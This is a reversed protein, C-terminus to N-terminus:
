VRRESMEPESPDAIASNMGSEAQMFDILRHPIQVVSAACMLEAIRQEPRAFLGSLHFPSQRCPIVLLLHGDFWACGALPTGDILPMLEDAPLRVPPESWRIAVVIGHFLDGGDHDLSVDELNGWLDVMALSLHHGRYEGYVADEILSHSHRPLLRARVLRDLCIDPAEGVVHRLRGIGECVAPLSECRVYHRYLTLAHHLSAAGLAVIPLILPLVWPSDVIRALLYVVSTTMVIASLCQHEVLAKSQELEASLAAIRQAFRAQRFHDDALSLFRPFAVTM